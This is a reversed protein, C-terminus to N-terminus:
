GPQFSPLDLFNSIEGAEIRSDVTRSMRKPFFSQYESWYAAGGPTTLQGVFFDFYAQYTEEELANSEYLAFVSQFHLCHDAMYAAYKARDPQALDPYRLMGVQVIEALGDIEYIQRNWQRFSKVVEQRSAARVSNTNKRVQLALYLLTVIVAIGGVFDGFNGMAELSM